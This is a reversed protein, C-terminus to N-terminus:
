NLYGRGGFTLQSPRKWQVLHALLLLKLGGIVGAHLLYLDGDLIEHRLLVHEIVPFKSMLQAMARLPKPIQLNCLM